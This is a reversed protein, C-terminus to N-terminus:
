RCDEGNCKRKLKGACKFTVVRRGELMMPEGTAPNRGQRAGKERVCFKGFGSILVDDGSALTSKLIELLTEVAQVSKTRALGAEEAVKEIIHSKTLSM